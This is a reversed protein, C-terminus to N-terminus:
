PSFYTYSSTSCWPPWIRFCEGKYRIQWTLHTHLSLSVPGSGNLIWLVVRFSSSVHLHGVLCFFLPLRIVWHSEIIAIATIGNHLYWSYQFRKFSCALFETPRVSCLVKHYNVVIIFVHCMVICEQHLDLGSEYVSVLFSGHHTSRPLSPLSAYM